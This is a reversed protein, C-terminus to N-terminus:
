SVYTTIKVYQKSQIEMKNTATTQKKGNYIKYMSKTKRYPSKSTWICHASNHHKNIFGTEAKLITVPSYQRRFPFVTGLVASLFFKTECVGKVITNKNVYLLGPSGNGSCFGIKEITNGTFKLPWMWVM